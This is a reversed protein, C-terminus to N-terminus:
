NLVGKVVDADISTEHIVPRRVLLILVAGVVAVAAFIGFLSSLGVQASLLAGGLVPGLIGGLRGIGLAWAIGAARAEGPYYSTIHANLLTQTGITGYGAIALLAYLPWFSFTRAILLIALAAACFSVAITIKSGFRDAARAGVFVFLIAGLNFVLLFSLASGLPYNAQRMLQPLWTNIGYVLLLCCFCALGFLVTPVRYPARVLTALGVLGSRPRIPGSEPLDVGLRAAQKRAREVHGRALLYELSEPLYRLALPLVLACPAAGIIYMVHWGLAPILPIALAAALIGGVPYGVAMIAYMLNRKRAPAYEILLSNLTPLVAGLGLGAVFRVVGFTNPDRALGCAATALSFWVVTGILVRRRGILDTVSGIVVAGVLMGILAYSGIAGARAPTIGWEKVLGPVTTGYVTLDYGDFMYALGCTLLIAAFSRGKLEGTRVPASM